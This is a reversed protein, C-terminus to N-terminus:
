LSILKEVIYKQFNDKFNDSFSFYEVGVSKRTVVIDKSLGENNKDENNKDENNKDENSKDENSKDENSKIDQKLQTKLKDMYNCVSQKVLKHFLYKKIVNGTLLNKYDCEVRKDLKKNIDFLMNEISMNDISETMSLFDEFNVCKYLLSITNRKCDMQRWILYNLVEYDINFEVFQGFFNVDLDINHKMLCKTFFVSVYSTISTLMKNINGDYIYNGQDNYNYVLNIENQFTYILHPDYKAYLMKGIELMIDQLENLQNTKKDFTKLENIYRMLSKCKLSIVFPQFGHCKKNNYNTVTKRMRLDLNNDVDDNKVTNKYFMERLDNILSYFM